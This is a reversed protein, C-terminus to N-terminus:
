AGRARERKAAALDARLAKVQAELIRKESAGRFERLCVAAEHATRADILGACVAHTLWSAFHEADQITKPAKPMGPPLAREKRLAVGSAAGGAVHFARREAVRDPDHQLCLGSEGLNLYSKCPTGAKTVGGADGCVRATTM